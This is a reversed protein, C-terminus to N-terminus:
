SSGGEGGKRRLLASFKPVVDVSFVRRHHDRREQVSENGFSKKGGVANPRASLHPSSFSPSLTSSLSSLTHLRDTTNNTGGLSSSRPLVFSSTPFFHNEERRKGGTTGGETSTSISPLPASFHPASSLPKLKTYEKLNFTTFLSQTRSHSSKAPKPVAAPTAPDLTITPTVIDTTSSSSTFSIDSATSLPRRIASTDLSLRQGNSMPHDDGVEMPEASSYEVISGVDEGIADCEMEDGGLELAEESRSATTQTSTSEVSFTTGDDADDPSTASGEEETQHPYDEDGDAETTPAVGRLTREYAVLQFVLDVTM